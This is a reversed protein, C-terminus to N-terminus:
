EKWSKDTGAAPAAADQERVEWLGVASSITLAAVISVINSRRGRPHTWESLLFRGFRDPRLDAVSHEPPLGWRIRAARELRQEQSERVNTRQGQRPGFPRPPRQQTNPPPM